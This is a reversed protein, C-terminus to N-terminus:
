VYDADRCIQQQDIEYSVEPGGVVVITEPSLRKLEAVLQESQRANWIYVGVGVIMPRRGLIQEIVDVSRQNVDFEIMMARDKLERLNAMLYRLGFSAHAYKANMTVLVIQSM